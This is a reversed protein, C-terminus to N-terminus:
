MYGKSNGTASFEMFGWEVSAIKMIILFVKESPGRLPSKHYM